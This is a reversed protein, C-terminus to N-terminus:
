RKLFACSRLARVLVAYATLPLGEIISHSTLLTTQKFNRRFTIPDGWTVFGVRGLASPVEPSAQVAVPPVAPSNHFESSTSSVLM